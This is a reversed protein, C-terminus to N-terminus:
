YNVENMIFIENLWISNFHFIRGSWKTGKEIREYIFTYIASKDDLVGRVDFVTAARSAEGYLFDAELVWPRITALRRVRVAWPSGDEFEQDFTRARNYIQTYM